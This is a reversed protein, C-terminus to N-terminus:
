PASLQLLIPEPLPPLDASLVSWEFLRGLPNTEVLRGGKRLNESRNSIGHLRGLHGVGQDRVTDSCKKFNLPKM